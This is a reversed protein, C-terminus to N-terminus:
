EAESHSKDERQAGIQAKWAEMSAIWWRMFHHEEGLIPTWSPLTRALMSDPNLPRPCLFNVYLYRVNLQTKLWYSHEAGFDRAAGLAALYIREAQEPRGDLMAREGLWILRRWEDGRVEDPDELEERM